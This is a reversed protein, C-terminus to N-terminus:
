TNGQGAQAQDPGCTHLFILHVNSQSNGCQCRYAAPQGHQPQGTGQVSAGPALVLQYGSFLAPANKIYIAPDTVDISWAPMSAMVFLLVAVLRQTFNM